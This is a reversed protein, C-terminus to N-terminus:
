FIIGYKRLICYFEEFCEQFNNNCCSIVAEDFKTDCKTNRDKVFGDITKSIESRGIRYLLNNAINRNHVNEFITMDYLEEPLEITHTQNLDEISVLVFSDKLKSPLLIYRSM